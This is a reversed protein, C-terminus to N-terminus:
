ENESLGMLRDFEDARYVCMSHKQRKNEPPLQMYDGYHDTLYKEWGVPAKYQRGEFTVDVSGEVQWREMAEKKNYRGIVAGVLKSDEYDYKVALKEMANNFFKYGILKFPARMIVSKILRPIYHSLTEGDKRYCVRAAGLAARKCIYISLFFRKQEKEDEPIGDIPFVDIFLRSSDYAKRRIRESYSFYDLRTEGHVMRSFPWCYYECNRANCVSYHPKVPETKVLELFREYDPRPMMVDIDDDWPIFGKHRVAGLLTGGGLFYVLGHKDCYDAYDSLMETLMKQVEREPIPQIEGNKVFKAM